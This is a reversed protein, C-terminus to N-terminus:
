GEACWPWGSLTASTMSGAARQGRPASDGYDAALAFLAVVEGAGRLRWGATPRTVFEGWGGCRSRLHSARRTRITAPKLNADQSNRSDTARVPTEDAAARQERPEDPGQVAQRKPTPAVARGCCGVPGIRAKPISPGLAWKQGVEGPATM